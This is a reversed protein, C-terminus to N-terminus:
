LKIVLETMTGKGEKSFQYLHAGIRAARTKINQLGHGRGTVASNFGKGDDKLQLSIDNKLTQEVCFTVQTAGSHKLANNLLEKFIMTVNRSYEMPISVHCYAANNGKVKFLIGTAEFLETGIDAIHAIIEGLNDSKPDMAWLIDRTGAYLLAANHRIQWVLKRQEAQQESIKGELIESLVNIRTLKNGLDDHFDEATQQRIRIMEQQKITEIAMLRRRRRYHFFGQTTIGVMVFFVISLLRFAVTQYFPPVIEFKFSAVPYQNKLEGNIAKVLFTYSGPPLSPYQMVNQRSPASFGTDLGAMQFSYLVDAPSKLYVGKVTITINNQEHSLSAGYPVDASVVQRYNGERNLLRQARILLHPYASGTPKIATRYGIFGKATGFWMMNGDAFIANQNTEFARDTGGNSRVAFTAKGPLYDLVNIGKGTGLWVRGEKDSAISYVSNERLGDAVSYNVVKGTKIDYTFLGRDDTGVLLFGRYRVLCTITLKEFLPARFRKDLRKNVTLMLGNQTGIFMSDRGSAALTTVFFPVGQVQRFLGKRYYYCGNAGGAWVTGSGDATLYNCGLINGGPAKVLGRPTLHWIGARTTGVWVQDNRDTFLTQIENLFPQNTVGPLKSVKGDAFAMLGGGEVGILMGGAPNRALSMVIQPDPVHQSKDYIVYDDGNFRYFGDGLTGLWMNGDADSYIDNVAYDTFGNNATYHVVQDGSLRYAGKKSGLWLNQSSDQFICFLQGSLKSLISSPYPRIGGNQVVLLQKNTLAYLVAPRARDFLMRSVYQQEDKNMAAARSWTNGIRKYIGKKYVAAYLIGSPHTALCTVIEGKGTITQPIYQNNKVLYLRYGLLSWIRERSDEAIASVYKQLVPGTPLPIISSDGLYALGNLTGFWVRGSRGSHVCTIFNNPLGEGRQYSTFATGDFLSAGTFTGVWLRHEADSAFGSVQSELLGDSIDYHTFSYKQARTAVPLLFLLLVIKFFCYSKIRAPV